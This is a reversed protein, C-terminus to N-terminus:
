QNLKSTLYSTVEIKFTGITFGLETVVDLM